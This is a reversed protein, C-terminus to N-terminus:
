GQLIVGRSKGKSRSVVYGRGKERMDRNNDARTGLFLHDPNCCAPIDCKHLVCLGEPIEGHTFHWALRHSGWDKGNFKVQGYGFKYKNKGTFLWCNNDSKDVKSWFDDETNKWNKREPLVWKVNEKCFQQNKDILVLGHRKPAEGMDEFFGTFQKWKGCINVKNKILRCWAYFTRTNSYGHKFQRQRNRDKHYCGCSTTLGAVLSGRAIEKTTGCDCLCKWARSTGQKEAEEIVLLRGFRRGTLDIRKM